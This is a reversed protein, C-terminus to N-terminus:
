SEPPPNKTEIPFQNKFAHAAIFANAQKMTIAFKQRLLDYLDFHHRILWAFSDPTDITTCIKYYGTKNKELERKCLAKYEALEADTIDDIDRLILKANEPSCCEWEGGWLEIEDTYIGIIELEHIEPNCGKGSFLVPCGRYYNVVDKFETQSRYNNKSKGEGKM